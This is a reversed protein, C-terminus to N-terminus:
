IRKFCFFVNDHEWNDTRSSLVVYRAGVSITCSIMGRADHGDVPNKQASTEDFSTYFLLPSLDDKMQALVLEMGQLGLFANRAQKRLFAMRDETTTATVTADKGGQAYVEVEFRDGPTVPCSPDPFQVEAFKGDCHFNAPVTIVGMNTRLVFRMDTEM